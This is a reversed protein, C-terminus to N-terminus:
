PWGKAKDAAVVACGRLLNHAKCAVIFVSILAFCNACYLFPFYLIKKKPNIALKAPKNKFLSKALKLSFM